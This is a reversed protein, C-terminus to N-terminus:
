YNLKSINRYYIMLLIFSVLDFSAVLAAIPSLLHHFIAIFVAISAGIKQLAGWLIAANNQQVSYLAQVILGGFMVMFMGITAFCQCTTPTIEGGITKLVFSPDIIQLLGSIVTIIAIMLNILRLYKM